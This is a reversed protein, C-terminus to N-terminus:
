GVRIVKDIMKRRLRLMVKTMNREIIIQTMKGSEKSASVYSATIFTTVTEFFLEEEFIM